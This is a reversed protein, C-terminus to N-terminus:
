GAVDSKSNRLDIGSIEFFVDPDFNPLKILLKKDEESAEDYSKQFAEKYDFVKLYGGVVEYDPNDAKEKDTM